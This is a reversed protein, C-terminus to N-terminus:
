AQDHTLPTGGNLCPRNIPALDSFGDLICSGPESFVICGSKTKCVCSSGTATYTTNCWYRVRPMFEDKKATIVNALKQIAKELSM